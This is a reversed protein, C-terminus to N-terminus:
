CARRRADRPQTLNALRGENCQSFKWFDVSAGMHRDNSENLGGYEYGSFQM